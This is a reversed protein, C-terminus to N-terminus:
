DLNLNIDAISDLKDFDTKNLLIPTITVYGKKILEVDCDRCNENHEILEGVLSFENDGVQVYRDSYLHKGLSTIKAGIIKKDVDPFNVNWVDGPKSLPLLKDIIKEAYKSYLDFDSEGHNFASFAFAVNGFFAAELAIAVTGSYMIDTGLNHAKNIGSVVLDANFDAFMLKAVKVCDAPTGSISYSDFNKSVEIKNVKIPKGITLSHSAASRNGDPAVVLVKNKKSLHEALRLIGNSLIGDDNCIIINMGKIRSM